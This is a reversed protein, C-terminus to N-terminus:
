KGSNRMFTIERILRDEMGRISEKFESKVEDIKAYIKDLEEVIFKDSTISVRIDERNKFTQITLWVLWALFGGGFTALLWM